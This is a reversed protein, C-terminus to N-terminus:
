RLRPRGRRAMMAAVAFGFVIGAAWPWLRPWQIGDRGREERAELAIASAGGEDALSEARERDLRGLGAEREDVSANV